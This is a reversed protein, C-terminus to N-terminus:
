HFSLFETTLSMWYFALPRWPFFPALIWTWSSAFALSITSLFRWEALPESSSVWRGLLQREADFANKQQRENTKRKNPRASVVVTRAQVARGHQLAAPPPLRAASSEVADVQGIRLVERGSLTFFFDVSDLRGIVRTSYFVRYCSPLM